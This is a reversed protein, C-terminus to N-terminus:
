WQVVQSAGDKEVESGELSLGLDDAQEGCTIENVRNIENSGLHGCSSFRTRWNPYNESSLLQIYLIQIGFILM